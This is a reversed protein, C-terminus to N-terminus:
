KEGSEKSQKPGISRIYNVVQWIQKETLKDKYALMDASVGDRIVVFIEGDTSGHDWADDTLDSPEGGSLALGGDGKGNPGHCAACHRQYLTKGAEVSEANQPEPNKLKQAEANRRAEQAQAGANRYEPGADGSGREKGLSLDSAGGTHRWAITVAAFISLVGASLRRAAGRSNRLSM